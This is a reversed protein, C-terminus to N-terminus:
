IRYLVLVTLAMIINVVTFILNYRVRKANFRTIKRSFIAATPVFLV